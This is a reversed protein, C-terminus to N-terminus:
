AATGPGRGRQGWRPSLKRSATHSPVPRPSGDPPLGTGLVPGWRFSVFLSFEASGSATTPPPGEGTGTGHGGAGPPDSRATQRATILRDIWALQEASFPPAEAPLTGPGEGSSGSDSAMGTISFIELEACRLIGTVQGAGLVAISGAVHSVEQQAHGM